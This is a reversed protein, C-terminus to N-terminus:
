PHVKKPTVRREQGNMAARYEGAKRGFRASAFLQELLEDTPFIEKVINVMNKWFDERQNEFFWSDNQPMEAATHWIESSDSQMYETKTLIAITSERKEIIYYLQYEEGTAPDLAALGQQMRKLNTQGKEDVFDLDIQRILAM